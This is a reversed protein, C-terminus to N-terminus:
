EDDLPVAIMPSRVALEGVRALYNQFHPTSRHVTVAAEDVYQEDIIFRARNEADQWLNYRLNGDERRTPEVLSRLLAELETERGTHALLVVFITVNTPV